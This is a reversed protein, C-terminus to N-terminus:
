KKRRTAQWSIIEEFLKKATTYEDHPDPGTLADDGHFVMDGDTWIDLCDCRKSVYILIAVVVVDYPKRATKCFITSYDIVKRDLSFNELSEEDTGNLDITEGTIEPFGFGDWGAIAVGSKHIVENAFACIDAWEEDTFDRHQKWYHTYGM